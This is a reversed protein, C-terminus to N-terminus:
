RDSFISTIKRIINIIIIMMIAIVNLDCNCSSALEEAVLLGTVRNQRERGRGCVGPAHVAPQHLLRLRRLRVLTVLEAQASGVDRLELRASHDNM